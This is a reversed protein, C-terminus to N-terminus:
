RRCFAVDDSQAHFEYDPTRRVVNSVLAESGSMGNGHMSISISRALGHTLLQNLYFDIFVRMIAQTWAFQGDGM